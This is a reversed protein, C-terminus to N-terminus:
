ADEPLRVFATKGEVDLEFRHREENDRFDSSM